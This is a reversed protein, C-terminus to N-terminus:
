DVFVFEPTNMLAWLLDETVTRRKADHRDFRALCTALEDASPPRCYVLFYIDEVIERPTRGSAALTAARGKDSTIKSALGPANMLHLAQVVTTETTRECPPDQNPDPRGFSDLFKSDFRVTWAQMARSGEPMAEFREPVQTV